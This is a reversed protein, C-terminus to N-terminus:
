VEEVLLVGGVAKIAGKVQPTIPYDQPLVMDIEQGLDPDTICIIVAGKTRGPELQGLISAVSAVAGVGELYIRLSAGGAQAAVQDIPQAGRAM